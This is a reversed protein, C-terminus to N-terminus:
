YNVVRNRGQKKAIYLAQDAQDILDGPSSKPTPILSSVGCSLTLFQSVKSQAHPIAVNAIAQRISEALMLAGKIKTNPLLM